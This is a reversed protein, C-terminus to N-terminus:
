EIMKLEDIEKKLEDIEKKLEDIEKKLEDFSTKVNKQIRNLDIADTFIIDFSM